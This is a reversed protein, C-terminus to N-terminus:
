RPSHTNWIKVLSNYQDSFQNVNRLINGLELQTCASFNYLYHICPLAYETLSSSVGISCVQKELAFKRLNLMKRYKQTCVISNPGTYLALGKSSAFYVLQGSQLDSVVCEIAEPAFTDVM